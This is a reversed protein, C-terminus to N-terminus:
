RLPTRPRAKYAANRMAIAFGAFGLLVLTSVPAFSCLTHLGILDSDSAGHPVLTLLALGVALVSVATLVSYHPEKNTGQSM